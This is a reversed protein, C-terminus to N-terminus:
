RIRGVRTSRAARRSAIFLCTTCSKLLAPSCKVTRVEVVINASAEILGLSKPDKGRGTLKYERSCASLHLYYLDWEGKTLLLVKERGFWSLRSTDVQM